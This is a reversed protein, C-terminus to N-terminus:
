LRRHSARAPACGARPQSKGTGDALRLLIDVHREEDAERSSREISSLPAHEFGRTLAVRKNGDPLPHNWVLHACLVAAKMPVDPYFEVGGFGARPAHLASDALHIDEIGHAELATEMTAIMGQESM